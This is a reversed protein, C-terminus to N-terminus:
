LRFQKEILSDMLYEAFKSFNVSQGTEFESSIGRSKLVALTEEETLYYELNLCDYVDHFNDKNVMWTDPDNSDSEFVFDRM